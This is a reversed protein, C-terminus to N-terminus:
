QLYYLTVGLVGTGAHKGCACGRSTHHMCCLGAGLGLIAVIAMKPRMEEHLLPLLRATYVLIPYREPLCIPLRFKLGIAQYLLFISCDGIMVFLM